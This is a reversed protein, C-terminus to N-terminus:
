KCLINLDKCISLLKEIKKKKSFTFRISFTNTKLRPDKERYQNIRKIERETISGDAQFAILLKEFTTLPKVKNPNIYPRVLPIRRYATQPLKVFEEATIVDTKYSKWANSLSGIKTSAEEFLMRHGPSVRLDINPNYIREIHPALHKSTKLVKEFRTTETEKDYALVIDGEKILNIPIWGRDITLLQHEKTYCEMFEINNLVAEEHPTRVDPKIASVGIESQMTDLLTLGGFVKGVLDKEKQSLKRWDDLDNSLPIRTDLWFQETLKEWTAKDVVDEISNWNVAKYYTEMNNREKKTKSVVARVNTLVSKEVMM